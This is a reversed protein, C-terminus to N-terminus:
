VLKKLVTIVQRICRFRGHGTGEIAEGNRDLDCRGIVVSGAWAATLLM